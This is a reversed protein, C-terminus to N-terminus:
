NISEEKKEWKDSLEKWNPDDIVGSAKVKGEPNVIVYMPVGDIKYDQLFHNAPLAVLVPSTINNEQVYAQAEAIESDIVIILKNGSKQIKSELNELGPIAKRCHGCTPSVFVLVLFNGSYDALTVREGKLTEAEFDPADQGVTLTIMRQVNNNGMNNIRRVLALTLFFNLLVVIWLLISSIIIPLQM